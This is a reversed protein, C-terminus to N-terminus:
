KIWIVLYTILEPINGLWLQIGACIYIQKYMGQITWEWALKLTTKCYCLNVRPTKGFYVCYWVSASRGSLWDTCYQELWQLVQQQSDWYRFDTHSLMFPNCYADCPLANRDCTVFSNRSARHRPTELVKSAFERKVSFIALLLYFSYLLFFIPICLCLWESSKQAAKNFKTQHM